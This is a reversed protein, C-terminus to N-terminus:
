ALGHEFCIRQLREMAAPADRPLQNLADAAARLTDITVGRAELAFRGLWRVAAREYRQRDGNRFVLCIRLADDLSIHPLERAAAIVLLENGAELARRFRTYASGDSTVFMHECYARIFRSPTLFSLTRCRLLLSGRHGRTM